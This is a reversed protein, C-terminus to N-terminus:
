SVSGEAGRPNPARRYRHLRPGCLKLRPGQPQTGAHRLNGHKNEIVATMSECWPCHFNRILRPLARPRCPGYRCPSPLGGSLWSLHLLFAAALRIFSDYNLFVAESFLCYYGLRM